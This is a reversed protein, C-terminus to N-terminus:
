VSGPQTFNVPMQYRSFDLTPQWAYNNFPNNNIRHQRSLVCGASGFSGCRSWAAFGSVTTLRRRFISSSLVPYALKLPVHDCYWAGSRLGTLSDCCVSSREGSILIVFTGLEIAVSSSVDSGAALSSRRLSGEAGATASLSVPPHSAWSTQRRKMLSARSRRRESCGGSYLEFRGPARGVGYTAGRVPGAERPQGGARRM